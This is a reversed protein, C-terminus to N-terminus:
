QEHIISFYIHKLLERQSYSTLVGNDLGYLVKKCQELKDKISVKMSKTGEWVKPYILPHREIRFFDRTKNKEKDWVNVNYNVYKPMDEQLIGEPLERAQHQRALKTGPIVGKRNQNQEKCTAIRLNSLTNNLKNRDIHDVSLAESGTGNNYYNMIVQHMSLVGNKSVSGCIYGNHSVNWKIKKNNNIEKEFNLIKNYSEICLKTIDESNSSLLLLYIQANELIVWIPNKVTNSFVDGDIFGIITHKLKLKQTIEDFESTSFSPKISVGCIEM